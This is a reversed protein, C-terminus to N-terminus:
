IHARCVGRLGASRPREGSRVGSHIRHLLLIPAALDSSADERTENGAAPVAGPNDRQLDARQDRYQARLLRQEETRRGRVRHRRLEWRLDGRLLACCRVKGCRRPVGRGHIRCVGLQLSSSHLLIVNGLLLTFCFSAVFFYLSADLCLQFVGIRCRSTRM